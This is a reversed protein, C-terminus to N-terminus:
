QGKKYNKADIAQELYTVLQNGINEWAFEREVRARGNDGLQKAFQENTLLMVMASAIEKVSEPNVLIGTEGHVVADSTGGANGAIVPKGCANAELYVMGFGEYDNGVSLSPMIALDCACYYQPLLHDAVRGVFTVYPTLRLHDVERRLAHEEPGEGVILYILDPVASRVLPLARIISIFNKRNALRGVSLVVKKGELHHRKVVEQADTNHRFVTIDVGPNLVSVCKINAGALCVKDRTFSSNVLVLTMSKLALKAWVRDIRTTHNLYWQLMTGHVLMINPISFLTTILWVALAQSSIEHGWFMVDPRYKRVKLILKCALIISSLRRPLSICEVSFPESSPVLRRQKFFSGLLLVYLEHNQSAIQKMLNYVFTAIGGIVPPYDSTLAIIRM